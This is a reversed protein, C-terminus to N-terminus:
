RNLTHSETTKPINLTICGNGCDLELVNKHGRFSVRYGNAASKHERGGVGPLWWDVKQRWSKAQEQCKM